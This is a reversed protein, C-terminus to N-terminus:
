DDSNNDYDIKIFEGNEQWKKYFLDAHEQSDAKIYKLFASETKHGSIAMIALSPIGDKYANTCFSRRATHSSILEHKFFTEEKRVGDKLITKTCLEKLKADAAAEKIYENFKQNTIPQPLEGNYKGIIEKVIKHLPIIVKNGTKSQKLEIFNGKIREQTIKTLDSFRLGTWCGVIFLDRVKELRANGSFDHNYFHEIEAKTLYINDSEEHPAAFKRSEYMTFHNIGQEKAENLFLKLTQIKKGITNTALGKGKLMDVFNQYFDLDIDKFDPEKYLKAYDKLYSYTKKYERQLKYCIPNGTNPNIRKHANETFYEIFSFLSFDKQLYKKPNYFKDVTEKLWEKSIKTKDTELDYEKNIHRELKNLQRQLEEKDNFEAIDRVVGAKNNWYKPNIHEQSVTYLDIKKGQYFRIRINTESNKKNTRIFYKLTAM